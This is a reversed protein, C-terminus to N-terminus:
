LWRLVRVRPQAAPSADTGNAELENEARDMDGGQNTPCGSGYVPGFAARHM